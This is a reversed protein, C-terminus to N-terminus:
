PCDNTESNASSSTCSRPMEELQQPWKRSLQGVQANLAAEAVNFAAESAQERTSAKQQSDTFLLLGLGLGMIVTLLVVATVVAFGEENGARRMKQDDSGKRHPGLTQRSKHSRAQVEAYHKCLIWSRQYNQVNSQNRVASIDDHIRRRQGVM